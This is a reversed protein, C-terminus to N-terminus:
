VGRWIFTGPRALLRRLDYVVKPDEVPRGGQRPDDTELFCSVLCDGDQEKELLEADSRGLSKPV